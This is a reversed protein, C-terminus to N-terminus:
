TVPSLFPCHSPWSCSPSGPLVLRDLLVARVDIALSIAVVAAVIVELLMFLLLLPLCAVSVLDNDVDVHHTVLQVATTAEGESNSANGGHDEIRQSHVPPVPSESTPAAGVFQRVHGAM